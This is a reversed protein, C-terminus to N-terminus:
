LLANCHDGWVVSAQSMDLDRPELLFDLQNSFKKTGNGGLSLLASTQRFRRLITQASQLRRSNAQDLNEMMEDMLCMFLEFDADAHAACALITLPWRLAPNWAECIKQNKVIKIAKSLYLRVMPDDPSVIPRRIKILHIRLAHISVRYKARYLKAMSQDTKRSYLSTVKKEQKNLQEWLDQCAEGVVSPQDLNTQTRRLLVNTLFMIHYIEQFDAGGLFPSISPDNSPFLSEFSGGWDSTAQGIGRHFPSLSAFNYIVCEAAMRYLKVCEIDRPLALQQLRSTLLKRCM